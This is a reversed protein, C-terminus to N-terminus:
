SARASGARRTHEAGEHPRGWYGPRHQEWSGRVTGGDEELEVLYRRGCARQRARRFQGNESYRVGERSPPLRAPDHARLLADLVSDIVDELCTEISAPIRPSMAQPAASISPRAPTSPRQPSCPAPCTSTLHLQRPPIYRQRLTPHARHRQPGADHRRPRVQREEDIVPFQRDRIRTVFGLFGRDPVAGRVGTLRLGYRQHGYPDGSDVNTTKVADELRNCDKDFFPTTAMPTTKEKWGWM